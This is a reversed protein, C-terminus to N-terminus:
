TVLKKNVWKHICGKLSPSDQVSLMSQLLRWPFEHQESSTQEYPAINDFINRKFSDCVADQVKVDDDAALNLCIRIYADIVRNDSPNATLVADFSIVLQRRIM